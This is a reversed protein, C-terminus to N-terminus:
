PRVLRWIYTRQAQWVGDKYSFSHTTHANAGESLKHLDRWSSGDLAYFTMEVNIEPSSNAAEIARMEGIGFVGASGFQEFVARKETPHWFVRYEWFEAIENSGRLGFLRGKISTKGVGWQWETGYEDFPEADSRFKSNDTIWRGSGKTMFSFHDVLWKPLEERKTTTETGAQDLEKIDAAASSLRATRTCLGTVLRGKDDRNAYILYSGGRDFGFGCAASNANTIVTMEGQEFGKWVKNVAVVVEVEPLGEPSPRRNVAIVRGSFVAASSKLEVAPAQPPACSCAYSTSVGGTLAILFVAVAVISLISYKM